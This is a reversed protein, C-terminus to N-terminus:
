DSTKLYEETYNYLIFSFTSVSYLVENISQLNENKIKSFDM